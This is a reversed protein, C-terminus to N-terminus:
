ITRFFLFLENVEGAHTESDLPVTSPFALLPNRLDIESLDKLDIEGYATEYGPGNAYSVSTYPLGDIVDEDDDVETNTLINSYREPYGNYTFAHSHDATVIILTDMESTMKRAMDIARAFEVTESLSKHVRNDHHATDIRGGEVFLFFGNEKDKQLMKLAAATMESLSPEQNGLNNNDIDLQYMCHDSEFLGLLYDTNEFDVESLDQNNWVYKATGNQQRDTIWEKILNKGDTRWGDFGEDDRETSPIMRNRGGGLVVKFKRAEENYVLQYGIDEFNKTNLCSAPIQHNSEWDRHPIHAYTGAPSAHTIRTNTVIGTSKGADQAWKFISYTLDDEQVQCDDSEVNASVGISRYNTKVGTLYATATCASDPVQKDVCYTKSLGYFPFKEFSLLSEEKGTFMRTAALTSIGMGDGLFFIVNKARETNLRNQRNINQKLKNQAKERWFEMSSEMENKVNVNTATKQIKPTKPHYHLDRTREENQSLTESILILIIFLGIISSFNKM